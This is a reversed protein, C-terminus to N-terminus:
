ILEELEEDASDRGKQANGYSTINWGSPIDNGTIYDSEQKECIASCLDNPGYKHHPRLEKGCNRCIMHEDDPHTMTNWDFEPDNRQEIRHEWITMFEAFLERDAKQEETEWLLYWQYKLWKVM